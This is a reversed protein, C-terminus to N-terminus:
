EAGGQEAEPASTNEASTEAAKTEKGDQPKPNEPRRRRYNFNRRYRRQPAQQSQTEDGQNEKDEENGEERPQRQRPPGRRFRPRFGRYMNQRVPRGQDGQSSGQGDSGEAGEGQIPANSYQPRRGYPRRLYYPPVRRRRYPRQQNSGGEGEPASENGETKEGSENNQYNQQYNRPPGRRRQYRRFHNRDAAYKSGQVPVGGPGTVNAAEAGKEGEVVDFEVTEGDGVSRLYKRPNNKKIATQHVFVDEKTDNRNIFGYGNRVNFWKVTGLVKTAIVKKEGVTAAPEQGAKGELAVTQQQQTEVESSM